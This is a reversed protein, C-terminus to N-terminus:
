QMGQWPDYGDRPVITRKALGVRRWASFLIAIYGGILAFGIIGRVGAATVSPLMLLLCLGALCMMGVLVVRAAATGTPRGDRVYFGLIALAGAVLVTVATMLVGLNSLWQQIQTITVQNNKFQELMEPGFADALEDAPASASVLLGSTCCGLLLASAAAALWVSRAARRREQDHAPPPSWPDIGPPSDSPSHPDHM